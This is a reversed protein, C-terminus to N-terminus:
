LNSGSSPEAQKTEAVLIDRSRILKAQKAQLKKMKSERSLSNKMKRADEIRVELNQVKEELRQAYKGVDPAESYVKQALRRWGNDDKKKPIRRKWLLSWM